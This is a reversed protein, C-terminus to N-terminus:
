GQHLCYVPTDFRETTFAIRIPKENLKIFGSNLLIRVPILVERDSTVAWKGLLLRVM